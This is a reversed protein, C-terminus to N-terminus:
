IKKIGTLISSTYLTLSQKDVQLGYKKMTDEYDDLWRTERILKPLEVFVDEWNPLLFGALHLVVFYLNWLSRVIKNKPCTFDHLIIKGGPNLHNLCMKILAEANCYKPIYSSTICDFKQGLNLKEADQCLFSIKQYHKLKKRAIELYSETIDVGLIKADPLKKAIQFTLIGTGCALDLVSSCNPVKKIIEKKWYKDKGFTTLNVIKDYTHATKEFFRPVLEKASQTKM